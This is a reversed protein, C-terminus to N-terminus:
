STKWIDRAFIDKPTKKINKLRRIDRNQVENDPVIKGFLTKERTKERSSKKLERL